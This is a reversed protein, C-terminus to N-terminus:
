IIYNIYLNMFWLLIIILMYFELKLLVLFILIPRYSTHFLTFLIDKIIIYHDNLTLPLEHQHMMLSYTDLIFDLMPIIVRLMFLLTIFELKYYTMMYMILLLFALMSIFNLFLSVFYIFRQNNLINILSLILVLLNIIFWVLVLAMIFYLAYCAFIDSVNLSSLDTNCSGNLGHMVGDSCSTGGTSKVEGVSPLDKIDCLFRNLRVEVKDTIDSLVSEIDEKSPVKVDGEILTNSKIPTQNSYIPMFEPDVNSDVHPNVEVKVKKFNGELKPSDLSPNSYKGGLKSHTAPSYLDLSARNSTFRIGGRILM